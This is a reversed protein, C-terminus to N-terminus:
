CQFSSRPQYLHKLERIEWGRQGDVRDLTIVTLQDLLKALGDERDLILVRSQQGPIRSEINRLSGRM